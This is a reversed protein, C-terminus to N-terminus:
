RVAIGLSFAPVLGPATASLRLTGRRGPARLSARGHSDTTASASGLRVTAGAVVRGRGADDYARVIVPLAAGRAVRRSAVVIELASQCGSRGTHCYYWLLRDGSRLRRGTGFPGTVDGAGASGARRGIKYVWGDRGRNADPGIRNVFLSGSDAAHRASCAGLDRVHFSPGHLRRAAILGALPTGSAVACRRGAVRLVAARVSVARAALLVRHRGAIMMTVRPARVASARAALAARATPARRRAHRRKPADVWFVTRSRSRMRATDIAVVELAYRGPRLRAPLLYSWRADSGIGYFYHTVGVLRGGRCRGTGRFREVKVSYYQCHGRYVRSLRIRVTRLRQSGPVITGALERPARGASYHRHRVSTVHGRPGSRRPVPTTTAKPGPAPAAGPAAPATTGCTGDNGDHVCLPAPASREPGKVAAITTAGAGPVTLTASGDPGTTASAGGATVTAGELAVPVRSGKTGSADPHIEKVSVTFPVGRAATAPATVEIPFVTSQYSPAPSRDVLMLVDDGEGLTDSCIGGGFGGNVWEAWYDSDAFAHTEGLITQVYQKHDWNGHTAVDIAAAVSDAPCSGDPQTALPQTPLTVQTRALLTHGQGEIRVYVHAGPTALATSATSALVAVALLGALMAPRLRHHM